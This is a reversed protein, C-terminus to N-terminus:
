ILGATVILGAAVVTLQHVDDIQQYWDGQQQYSNSDCGEEPCYSAVLKVVKLTRRM